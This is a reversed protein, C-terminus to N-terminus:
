LKQLLKQKQEAFEEASLIGKEKLQALKELQALVDPQSAQQVPQEAPRSLKDRVFEAFKRATAKDVQDITAINGSTHIKVKGFLLGTEYQISTINKLPFDEVRIGYLLGKDIFILRRDTSVLIGQGENYIGQIINDVQEQASLINPLENIEKRGFFSSVNDLKLQQITAKIEDLRTKKENDEKKMEDMRNQFEEKKQEKKEERQIKKENEVAIKQEEKIKREQEDNARKEEAQIKKDAKDTVKKELLHQVDALSYKKLSTEGVKSYCKSCLEGGDNLKGSSFIPTNLFKMEASCLACNKM